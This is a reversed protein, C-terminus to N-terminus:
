HAALDAEHLLMIDRYMEEGILKRDRERSKESQKWAMLPRMHWNILSAIYLSSGSYNNYFSVKYGMLANCLFMYASYNEHGYYHADKTKNGKADIFTKTYMKGCDHFKAACVVSFPFKHNRAYVCAGMCHDLLSLRHHSNDQLFGAMSEYDFGGKGEACVVIEDWGEYYYPCQFRKLMKDFVEDPVKRERNLNREKCIELPVVFLVCTKKCDYKKIEDLFAIRRKMSMNTADYVCSAGSQLDTKIRKHLEVFVDTNKDQTNVDSTLEERIEDSSHVHFGKRKLEAAYTSKGSAPLGVLMIFENM